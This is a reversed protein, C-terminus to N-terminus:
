GELGKNLSALPFHLWHNGLHRFDGDRESVKVMLGGAKRPAAEVV